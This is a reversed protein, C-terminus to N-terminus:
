VWQFQRGAEKIWQEAEGYDAQVPQDQGSVGSLRLVVEADEPLFRSRWVLALLGFNGSQTEMVRFWIPSPRREIKNENGKTPAATLSGTSNPKIGPGGKPFGFPIPLGLGAFAAESGAVDEGRLFQAYLGSNRSSSRANNPMKLRTSRWLAHVKKLADEWDRGGQSWGLRLYRESAVPFEPPDQILAAPRNPDVWNLYNEVLKRAVKLQEGAAQAPNAGKPRKAPDAARMGGLGHRWRAGLGGFAIWTKALEEALRTSTPCAEAQRKLVRIEFTFKEGPPVFKRSWGETLKTPYLGYALYRLYVDNGEFPLCKGLNVNKTVAVRVPSAYGTKPKEDGPYTVEHAAGFLLGEANRIAQIADDSTGWYAGAFARFWWRLGYVISTPRVGEFASDRLDPASKLDIAHGPFAPTVIEVEFEAM